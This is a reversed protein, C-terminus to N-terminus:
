NTAVFRLTSLLAELHARGRRSWVNYLCQQGPIKVYALWQPGTGGELGYGASSGDSYMIRHPWADYVDGAWPDSGSGAVGFASREGPLDYAVAWGGSFTAPRLTAGADAPAPPAPAILACKSRNAARSWVDFYVPALQDRSLRAGSWPSQPAAPVPPPTPNGQQSTSACGALLGTLLLATLSKM